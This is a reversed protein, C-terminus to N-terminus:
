LRLLNCIYVDSSLLDLLIKLRRAVLTKIEQVLLIEHGTQDCFITEHRCFVIYLSFEQSYFSISQNVKSYLQSALIKLEKIMSYPIM